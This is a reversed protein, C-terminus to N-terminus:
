STIINKFVEIIELSEPQTNKYRKNLKSTGPEGSSRKSGIQSTRKIIDIAQSGIEKNRNNKFGLSGLSDNEMESESCSSYSQIDEITIDEENMEENQIFFQDFKKWSFKLYQNQYNM